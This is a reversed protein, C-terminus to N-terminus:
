ADILVYQVDDRKLRREASAGHGECRPAFYVEPSLTGWGSYILIVAAPQGCDQIAGQDGRQSTDGCRETVEQPFPVEENDARSILVRM